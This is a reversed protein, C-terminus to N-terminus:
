KPTQQHMNQVYAYEEVWGVRTAPDDRALSCSQLCSYVVITGWDLHDLGRAQLKEVGLFHLLQPLVQTDVVFTSLPTVVLGSNWPSVLICSEGGGAGGCYCFVQFELVRPGHCQSCNPIHSSELQGTEAVWLPSKGEVREEEVHFRIVQDPSAQTQRQFERFCKDEQVVLGELDGEELAM